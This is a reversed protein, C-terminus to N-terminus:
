AGAGALPFLAPLDALLPQVRDKASLTEADAVDPWAIAIAPDNWALGKDHEPSYYATVKYCVVTDPLLTCFGHAFGEPVWLQHGNDASLTAAVWQGFTPSGHRIDVAVDLIA